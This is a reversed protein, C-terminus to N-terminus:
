SEEANEAIADMIKRFSDWTKIQTGDALTVKAYCVDYTEVRRIDEIRVAIESTPNDRDTLTIFM